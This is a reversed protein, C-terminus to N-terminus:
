PEESFLQNLHQLNSESANESKTVVNETNKDLDNFTM